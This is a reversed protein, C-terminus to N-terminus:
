DTPVIATKRSFVAGHPNRLEVKRRQLFRRGLGVDRALLEHQAGPHDVPEAAAKVRPHREAEDGQALDLPDDALFHVTGARELEHHRHDLGGLQPLLGAAPFLHTGVHQAQFVPVLAIEHHARRVLFHDGVDHAPLDAAVPLERDVEVLDLGLEAVLDARAEAHHARALEDHLVRVREVDVLGAHQAAVLRHVVRVRADEGPHLELEARHVGVRARDAAQGRV